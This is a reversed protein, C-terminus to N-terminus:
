STPGMSIVIDLRHPNSDPNLAIASNGNGTVAPELSGQGYKKYLPQGDLGLETSTMSETAYNRAFPDGNIGLVLACKPHLAMVAQQNELNKHKVTTDNGVAMQYYNCVTKDQTTDVVLIGKLLKPQLTKLSLADLASLMRSAPSGFGGLLNIFIGPPDITEVYGQPCLQELAKTRVAQREHLINFFGVLPRYVGDSCTIKYKKLEERIEKLSKASKTNLLEAIKITANEPLLSQAKEMAGFGESDQATAINRAAAQVIAVHRAHIEPDQLEEAPPAKYDKPLPKSPLTGFRLQNAWVSNHGALEFDPWSSNEIIVRRVLGIGHLSTEQIGLKQGTATDETVDYYQDGSQEAVTFSAIFPSLLADANTKGDPHELNYWVPRSLKDELTEEKIQLASNKDRTLQDRAYDTPIQASHATVVPPIAEVNEPTQYFQTFVPRMDASPRGKKQNENRAFAVLPASLTGKQLTASHVASFIPLVDNFTKPKFNSLIGLKPPLGLGSNPMILSKNTLILSADDIYQELLSHRAFNKYWSSSKIKTVFSEAKKAEEKTIQPDLSLIRVKCMLEGFSEQARRQLNQWEEQTAPTNYPVVDYGTSARQLFQNQEALALSIQELDALERARLIKQMEGIQTQATQVMTTNPPQQENLADIAIKAAKLERRLVSCPLTQGNNTFITHITRILDQCAQLNQKKQEPLIDEYTGTQKNLYCDKQSWTYLQEAFVLDQQARILTRFAPTELFRQINTALQPVEYALYNLAQALQERLNPHIPMPWIKGLYDNISTLISEITTDPIWTQTQQNFIFPTQFLTGQTDRWQRNQRITNIDEIFREINQPPPAQHVPPPIQSPAAQQGAPPPSITASAQLPLSTPQTTPAPSSSPSSPAKSSKINILRWFNQLRVTGNDQIEENNKWKMPIKPVNPTTYRISVDSVTEKITDDAGLTVSQIDWGNTKLAELIYAETATKNSMLIYNKPPLICGSPDESLISRSPVPTQPQQPALSPQKEYQPSLAQTGLVSAKVTLQDVPSVSTANIKPSKHFWSPITQTFFDRISSLIRCILQWPNSKFNKWTIQSVARDGLVTSPPAMSPTQGSSSSIPPFPNKQQGTVNQPM